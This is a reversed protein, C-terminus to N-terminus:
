PERAAEIASMAGACTHSWSWCCRCRRHCHSGQAGASPNGAARCPPHHGGRVGPGCEARGGPAGAGGVTWKRGYSGRQWAPCICGHTGIAAQLRSVRSRLLRYVARNLILLPRREVLRYAIERRCVLAGMSRKTVRTTRTQTACLGLMCLCLRVVREFTRLRLRRSSNRSDSWHTAKRM